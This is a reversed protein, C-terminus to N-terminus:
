IRKLLEAKKAAFEADTLIGRDRLGALRELLAVPDDGSAMPSAPPPAPATESPPPDAAAPDTPTVQRLQDLRVPGFQGTFALADGGGQQQGFGGILHDGTDYVTVTGGDDVALRRQDPFWAYRHRNQAGTAAPRGLGAPWWDAGAGSMAAPETFLAAPGVTGIREALTTCLANVTAALQQNFMDGVMTMGGRMWQGAGGLEPHSFQAATGSGAAVARLLTAVADTSVGHRGALEEIVQQGRTSLATM